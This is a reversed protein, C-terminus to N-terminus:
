RFVSYSVVCTKCQRCHHAASTLLLGVCFESAPTGICGGRPPKYHECTKCYRPAHNGKKVEMGESSEM